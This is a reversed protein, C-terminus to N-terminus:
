AFQLAFYLDIYYRYSYHSGIFLVRKLHPMKKLLTLVDVTFQSEDVQLLQFRYEHIQLNLKAWQKGLVQVVKPFSLSELLGYVVPLKAERDRQQALVVLTKSPDITEQLDHLTRELADPNHAVDFVLEIEDLIQSNVVRKELHGTLSLEKSRFPDEEQTLALTHLISNAFRYNETLYTTFTQVSDLDKDYSHIETPYIDALLVIGQQGENYLYLQLVKDSKSSSEWQKRIVKAAIDILEDNGFLEQSMCFLQKCRDTMISLKEFLIEQSTEGLIDTHELSVKCLIVVSAQCLRTADYRGGLGAEFIQLRCKRRHFLFISLLTLLEFYSWSASEEPFSAVLDQFSDWAEVADIALPLSLSPPSKLDDRIRIRELVSLLHPSTYLGVSDKSDSPNLLMALFFPQLAKGM